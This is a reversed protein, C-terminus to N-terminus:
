LGEGVAVFGGGVELLVGGVVMVCCSSSCFGTCAVFLTAIVGGGGEKNASSCGILFASVGGVEFCAPVFLTLPSPPLLCFFFLYTVIGDMSYGTLSSHSVEGMVRTNKKIFLCWKM